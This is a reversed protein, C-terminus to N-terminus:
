GGLQQQFKWESFVDETQGCTHHWKYRKHYYHESFLIAAYTNDCFFM